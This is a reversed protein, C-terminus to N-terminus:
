THSESLAAVADAVLVRAEDVAVVHVGVPADSASVCGVPHSPSQNRAEDVTVGAWAMDTLIDRRVEPSNEGVGGGFLIADAGGLAAMYAGIYKRVRYCYVDLALQAEPADSALVARMEGNGALGVLGSARNLLDELETAALGSDRLLHLLIGPDLDGGRSAMVLGELPTFGMSTDIPRGNRIAAMSCGSGLQISIVRDQGDTRVAHGRWQEYMSRHALGHFGYRRIGHRRRLHLPLAYTAARAPLAAFFGTDPVAVQVATESLAARSAEIWALAPPNHLPALALTDQLAVAAAADIITAVTIREGGHVWRHAVVRVNEPAIGARRCFLAISVAANASAGLTERHLAVLEDATRRFLVLRVSSSGANVTLVHLVGSNVDAADAPQGAM